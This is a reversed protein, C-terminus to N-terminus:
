PAQFGADELAGIGTTSLVLEVFAAAGAPNPAGVLSAIPYENVVEGASPIAIGEVADGAGRVDTRYVLAADVEGLEVKTLASRVDPELTDPEVQVGALDLLEVAAAGCPVEPACLAVTLDERALDDLNTVDGPNGPPVAIQLLNGAFSEPAAATLGAATVLDMTSSNATALVDAPAGALVQAALESSAAFSFVLESEPYTQEFEEALAEFVDTLSAAALVTVEGSVEAAPAGSESAGSDLAGGGPQAAGSETGCAAVLALAAGAVGAAALQGIRGSCVMGARLKRRRTSRDLPESADVRRRFNALHALLDRM